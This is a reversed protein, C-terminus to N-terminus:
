STARERDGTPPLIAGLAGAAGATGHDPEPEAVFSLLAYRVGSTVSRVAHILAGPSVIASGAPPRYLIPGYEPFHLEGGEYDDNLNITVAYRGRCGARAVGYRDPTDDEAAHQRIVLYADRGGVGVGAGFVRDVAPFLTQSLTRDIQLQLEAQLPSDSASEGVLRAMEVAALVGPVILVPAQATVVAYAPPALLPLAAAALHRLQEAAGGSRWVERLRLDPGVLCTTLSVRGEAPRCAGLLRAFRRDPDALLRGSCGLRRELKRLRGPAIPAICIRELGGLERAHRDLEDFFRQYSGLVADPLVFIACPAGAHRHLDRPRGDADVLAFPPLFAGPRLPAAAPRAAMWVPPPAPRPPPGDPYGATASPVVIPAVAAVVEGRRARDLVRRDRFEVGAYAEYDSVTRARGLGFRDLEISVRPDGSPASGTLHHFRQLGLQDMRGWGPHDNWHLPRVSHARSGGPNYYHYVFVRTPHFVDWGHTFLRLSFAAEEQNFYLYPDYPVERLMEGASFMFGGAVFAGPVPRDPAGDLGHSRFHLTGDDNFPAASRVLLPPDQELENPPQYCAPSTSLVPKPSDCRSLEDILRTDWGPALRSHSDVQLTYEEGRWLQEAQHRAWCVGRAERVPVRTFRVQEPRADSPTAPDVDPEFQWCIGFFVREPRDAKDFADAVTPACEADRYAALRVFIRPEV